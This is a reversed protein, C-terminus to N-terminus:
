RKRGEEEFSHGPRDYRALRRWRERPTGYLGAEPDRLSRLGAKTMFPRLHTPCRRYGSGDRGPAVSKGIAGYTGSGLAAVAVATPPAASRTPSSSTITSRTLMPPWSTSRGRARGPTTSYAATTRDSAAASARRGRSRFSRSSRPSIGKWGFAGRTM